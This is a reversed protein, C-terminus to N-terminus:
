GDIIEANVANLAKVDVGEPKDPNYQINTLKRNFKEMFLVSTEADLEMLVEKIVSKIMEIQDNLVTVSINYDITKDAMGEVFKKYQQFLNMQRDMWQRMQKDAGDPSQEGSKVANYWYEMREEMISASQILKKAVDLHTDAIANIKDKYATSSEVIRLTEKARKPEVGQTKAKQIDQLVKGELQLHDRRFGQLTARSIQLKPEDKRKKSLWNFVEEVSQGETLRKIIKNKDPHRLIKRYKINAM